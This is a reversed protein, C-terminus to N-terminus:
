SPFSSMGAAQVFARFHRRGSELLFSQSKVGTKEKVKTCGGPSSGLVVTGFVTIIDVEGHTCDM